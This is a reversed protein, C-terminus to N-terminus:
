PKPTAQLRDVMQLTLDACVKMPEDDACKVDVTTDGRQLRFHAARSQPPPPRQGRPGPGGPPPPPPGDLDDGAEPGGPSPPPPPAGPIPPAPPQTAAIGSAPQVPPPPPAGTGQAPPAPPQGSPQAFAGGTLLALTLGSILLTKM